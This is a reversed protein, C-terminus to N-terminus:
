KQAWRLLQRQKSLTAKVRDLIRYLPHHSYNTLQWVAVHLGQGRADRPYQTLEQAAFEQVRRTYTAEFPDAHILCPKSRAFHHSSSVLLHAGRTPSDKVFRFVEKGDLNPPCVLAWWQYRTTELGAEENHMSFIMRLQGDALIRALITGIHEWYAREAQPDDHHAVVYHRFVGSTALKSTQETM